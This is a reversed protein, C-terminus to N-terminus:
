RPTWALLLKPRGTLGKRALSAREAAEGVLGYGAVQDGLKTKLDDATDLLGKIRQKDADGPDTPKGLDGLARNLDDMGKQASAKIAAIAPDLAGKVGQGM